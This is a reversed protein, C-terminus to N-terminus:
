DFDMKLSCFGDREVWGGCVVSEMWSEMERRLRPTTRGREAGVELSGRTRGERRLFVLLLELAGEEVEERGGALMEGVGGPARVVVVVVVM